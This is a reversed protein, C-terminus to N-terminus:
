AFFLRFLPSRPLPGPLELGSGNRMLINRAALFGSRVAGEMTSPWGTQTWDGALQLNGAASQQAPRFANVGPLPAFVARHETLVRGHLRRAHRSGPWISKLEAEVTDLIESESRSSLHGAASVVVQCYFEGSRPASPQSHAPKRQSHNFFWQSMRDLLVAHPLSTLPEDFWLHASAISATEIRSIAQELSSGAPLGAADTPQGASQGFAAQTGGSDEIPPSGLLDAPLLLRCIWHPVSLVFEDGTVFSGDRLEVATVQGSQMLIKTIGTGTRIEVGAQSLADAIRGDYIEGLPVTPISVEWGRRNSLFGDVFVKRAHWVSIRDLTESLASVLVTHWFRQQVTEPQGNRTLWAAFSEASDHSESIRDRSLRRLGRAIARKESLTFWPMRALSLALHAPAPFPHGRFPVISPVEGSREPAVFHLTKQTKFLDSCGTMECFYQFSTCCGMAVHQCNDILQGTHRDVISGARGGLRPRSELLTVQLGSRALVAASALGALGGGIVVVRSCGPVSAPQPM